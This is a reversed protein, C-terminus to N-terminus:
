QRFLVGDSIFPRDSESGDYVIYEFPGNHSLVTFLRGGRHPRVDVILYTGISGVVMDGPRLESEKPAGQTPGKM